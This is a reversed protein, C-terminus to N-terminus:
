ELPKFFFPEYDPVLEPHLIHILDKLVLDPRNPALEYYLLGGTEGTTGAFTFIKKTTFADFQTYHPSSEAMASYSTFQSPSIWFDATKGKELVSEWSLSLSGTEQTDQYVYKANADKLFQAAWSNGGPLYWVDKYMAGSIVIPTTTANKALEKASNYTSEIEAFIQDAKEEAGFFPAFFKIWEAKGLPTEETWDGNYVVPINSRQITEYTKNQSDISFGVVLEPQLALLMETNIAENNGLEKVQGNTILARTKPSSIYKTDPFGILTHEANLAELVPIHTTSTVVITEIPVNVIADYEDKNLTIFAAKEKPVLAYRFSTKANPWPSTIHLITIGSAQKEISFGKAYKINKQPAISVIDKKSKDSKCSFLLFLSAIISFYKM